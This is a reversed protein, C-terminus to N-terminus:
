ILAPDMVLSTRACLRKGFSCSVLFLGLLTLADGPWLPCRACDGSLDPGELPKSTKLPPVHSPSLLHSLEFFM